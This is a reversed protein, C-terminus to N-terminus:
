QIIPYPFTKSSIFYKLPIIPTLNISKKYIIILQSIIFIMASLFVSLFAIVVKIDTGLQKSILFLLLLLPSLALVSLIGKKSIKVEGEKEETTDCYLIKELDESPKNKLFNNLEMIFTRRFSDKSYKWADYTFVKIQKNKNILINKLTKIITSKGSGWGGLLGINFPTSCKTVIDYLLESYPKTGLLDKTELLNIESDPIFKM